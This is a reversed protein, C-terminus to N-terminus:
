LYFVYVLKVKDPSPHVRAYLCALVFNFGVENGEMNTHPDCLQKAEDKCADRFSPDLRCFFNGILFTVSKIETPLDVAGLCDVSTRLIHASTPLMSNPILSKFLLFAASSM